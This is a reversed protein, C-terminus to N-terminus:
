VRRVQDLPAQNWRLLHRLQHREGRLSERQAFLLCVASLLLCVATMVLPSSVRACLPRAPQLLDQGAGRAAAAPPCRRPLSPPAPTLAALAAGGHVGSFCLSM